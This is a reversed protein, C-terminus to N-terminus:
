PKKPKATAWDRFHGCENLVEKYYKTAGKHFPHRALYDRFFSISRARDGEQRYMRGRFYESPYIVWGVVAAAAFFAAVQKWSFIM